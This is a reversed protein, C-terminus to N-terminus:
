GVTGDSATGGSGPGNQFGGAPSAGTSGDCCEAFEAILATIQVDNTTLVDGAQSIGTARCTVIMRFPLQPLDNTISNLYAILDTSFLSFGLYGTSGGPTAVGGTPDAAAGGVGPSPALVSSFTSSDEIQPISSGPIDYLCTIQTVRLFQATLRNQVGLFAGAAAADLTQGNLTVASQSPSDAFLAVAIEDLGITGSTDLFFGLGLFSTGQDNNTGTGGCSAMVFVLAFVSCAVIAKRLTNLKSMKRGLMGMFYFSFSISLCFNFIL